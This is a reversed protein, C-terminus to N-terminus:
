GLKVHGRHPPNMTGSVLLVYRRPELGGVAMSPQLQLPTPTGDSESSSHSDSSPSYKEEPLPSLRTNLSTRLAADDRPAGLGLRHRIHQSKRRQQELFSVM